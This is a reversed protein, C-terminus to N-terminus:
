KMIAIIESRSKVDMKEMIKKIHDKVTYESIFLKEAIERNTHGYCLLRLVEAERKSLNFDEGAKELDVERKEAIKEILVMIHTPDSEGASLFFARLSFSFGSLNEIVSCGADRKRDNIVSSKLEDCLVCIEEPIHPKRMTRTKKKHFAPLIELAEKNAYSLKNNMDLILIGPNMRRRIIELLNGVISNYVM